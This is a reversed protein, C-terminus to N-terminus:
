GGYYMQMISTNRAKTLFEITGSNRKPLGAPAPPLARVQVGAVLEQDRECGNRQAVAHGLADLHGARNCNDDDPEHEPVEGNRPQGLRLRSVQRGEPAPDGFGQIGQQEDHDAERHDDHM